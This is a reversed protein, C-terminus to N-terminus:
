PNFCIGILTSGGGGGRGQAYLVVCPRAECYGGGPRVGVGGSRVSGFGQSVGEEKENDFFFIVNKNNNSVRVGNNQAGYQQVTGYM